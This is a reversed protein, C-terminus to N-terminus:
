VDQGYITSYISVAAGQRNTKIVEVTPTTGAEEIPRAPRWQKMDGEKGTLFGVHRTTTSAAPGIKIEFKVAGSGSVDVGTVFLTTNSATFTHTGTADSAVDVDEKFDDFESASVITDVVKVFIPNLEANAANDKSIPLANASTLAHTQLSVEAEGGSNITLRQTDVTSDVLVFLQKRDATIRAAGGDGEDLSDTATEDVFYGSMNVSSVAPTFAADDVIVAASSGATVRLNGSSDVSLPVYDGDPAFDVQSAQHVVLMLVGTDGTVHVADEAKGLNTPGVGPIVDLVNVDGEANTGDSLQVFIPNTVLNPLRDKSVQSPFISDAM